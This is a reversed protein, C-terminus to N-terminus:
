KWSQLDLTVEDGPSLEFEGAGVEAMEGNVIIAWFKQEDEEAVVGDVGNIFGGDEDIDFNENLVDLLIDGEKIEIEKESFIEDEEDNSVIVQIVEENVESSNVESQNNNNGNNNTGDNNTSGCGTLVVTSLVVAFILTLFRKLM